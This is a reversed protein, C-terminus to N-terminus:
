CPPKLLFYYMMHVTLLTNDRLQWQCHCYRHRRYVWINLNLSKRFGSVVSGGTFGRKASCNDLIRKRVYQTKQLFMPSIDQQYLPNEINRMVHPDTSPPPLTESDFASFFSLLCKRISKQVEDGALDEVLM